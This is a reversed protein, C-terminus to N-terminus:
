SPGTRRTAARPSVQSAHEALFHAAQDALAKLYTNIDEVNKMGPTETKLERLRGFEVYAAGLAEWCPPDVITLTGIALARDLAHGASGAAKTAAMPEGGSEDIFSQQQIAKEALESLARRYDLERAM